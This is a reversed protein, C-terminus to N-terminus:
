ILLRRADRSRDNRQGFYCCFTDTFIWPASLRMGFHWSMASLTDASFFSVGLKKHARRYSLAWSARSITAWSPRSGHDVYYVDYLYFQGSVYSYQLRRWTTVRTCSRAATSRHFTKRRSRPICNLQHWACAGSAFNRKLRDSRASLKCTQGPGDTAYEIVFASSFTTSRMFGVSFDMSLGSSAPVWLLAYSGSRCHKKTVWSRSRQGKSELYVPKWSEDYFMETDLKVIRYSCWHKLYRASFVYISLCVSTFVMGGCNGTGKIYLDKLLLHHFWVFLFVYYSAFCLHM